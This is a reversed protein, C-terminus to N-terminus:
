KWISVISTFDDSWAQMDGAGDLRQWAPNTLLPQLAQENKALVAWDSKHVLPTKQKPRYKQLLAPLTMKKAHDALVKNVQLHRNSIHFVLLGDNKLKSLYLELAERTLLHTPISDSSFADIVLLDYRERPEKELTLRADGIKITYNDDICDALYSFYDPNIAIDVVAPNLEFLRWDQPKKAYSVLEGAGLGVVGIRWHDNIQDYQRFVQGLPGQPSYYGVPTCQLEDATMVQSGHETSGSYLTHMAVIQTALRTGINREVKLVGYFNRSQHLTQEKQPVAVPSACSAIVLGYLSLYVLNKRFFFYNAVIAIMILVLLLEEQFNDANFYLLASFLMM